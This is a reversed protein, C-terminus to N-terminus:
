LQFEFKFTEPKVRRKLSKGVTGPVRRFSPSRTGHELLKRDLPDPRLEKKPIMKALGVSKPMGVSTKPKSLSGMVVIPELNIVRESPLLSVEEEADISVSAVVPIVLPTEAKSVEDFGGANAAILVVGFFTALIAAFVLVFLGVKKAKSLM